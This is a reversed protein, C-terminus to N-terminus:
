LTRHLTGKFQIKGEPMFGYSIHAYQPTQKM